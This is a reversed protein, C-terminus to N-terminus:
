RNRCPFADMLFRTFGIPAEEGLYQDNRGAWTTFKKILTGADTNGVCAHFPPRIPIQSNASVISSVGIVMGRCYGALVGDSHSCAEALHGTSGVPWTGAFSEGNGLLLYVLFAGAVLEPRSM